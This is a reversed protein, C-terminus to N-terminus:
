TRDKSSIALTYYRRGPGDHRILHGQAHLAALDRRITSRIVTTPVHRQYLRHVRGTTWEGGQARITALLLQQRHPGRLSPGTAPATIAGALETITM